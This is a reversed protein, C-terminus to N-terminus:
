SGKRSTLRRSRLAAMRDPGHLRARQAWVVPAGGPVAADTAATDWRQAWVALAPIAAAREARVAWRARVAVREPRDADRRGGCVVPLHGVTLYRAAIGWCTVNRRRDVTRSRRAGFVTVLGPPLVYFSAFKAAPIGFVALLLGTWVTFAVAGLALTSRPIGEGLDVGFLDHQRTELQFHRTLTRGTRM